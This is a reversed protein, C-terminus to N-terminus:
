KKKTGAGGYRRSSIYKDLYFAYKGVIPMYEPNTSVVADVLQYFETIDCRGILAYCELIVRNYDKKTLAFAESIDYGSISKIDNRDYKAKNPNDLHIFYRVSANPSKCHLPIPCNLPELLKVVASYSTKCEFAIICHYHPKKLEGKKHDESDSEYVDSDHLPSVAIPTKLSELYDVWDKPLSEPYLVFSWFKARTDIKKAKLRVGKM